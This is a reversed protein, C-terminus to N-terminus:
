PRAKLRYNSKIGGKQDVVVFLIRARSRGNALMARKPKIAFVRDLAPPDLNFRSIRTAGGIHKSILLGRRIGPPILATVRAVGDSDPGAPGYTRKKIRVSVKWGPGTRVKITKRAM